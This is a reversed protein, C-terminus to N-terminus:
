RGSDTVTTINSSITKSFFVLYRISVYALIIIALIESIHVLPKLFSSGNDMFFKNSLKFAIASIVYPFTFAAYTPYFKLKLLSVMNVSVYLYNIIAVTLMIYIMIPNLQKFASLYGALCLSMPATFIAITPRAPEPLEKLKNLRYVVIALVLIYLGLGLYFLVQGVWLKNMALSTVSAVVIGVSVVFWSPFVNELKFGIIFRKFFLLMILVHAFIAGYWIYVAFNTYPKLYTSLLMLAMTSTPLISLVIPNKLEEKVTNTHFTIKFFFLLLSIVSLLGCVNRINHGYSFLLNGLAAFSLSIGSIALPINKIFKM